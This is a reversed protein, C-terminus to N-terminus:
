FTDGFDDPRIVLRQRVDKPIMLKLHVEPARVKPVKTRTVQVKIGARLLDLSMAEMGGQEWHERFTKGGAVYVWRDKASEPDIAELEAILKDLTGEAQDQTFRTKTYRGGPELEKMYYAISEELRKLEKRMEEGRAYERTEVPFDGLVALVQEVLRDYVETPNPSGYGGSKCGQCRLYAYDGHKNRTHHVIMNTECNVCKLVGLFKTAGGVHRPPQNKGRADLVAQLSDFEEQTFIPDAVRIPKGDRGYLLKSRRMGTTEKNEEVRYGLLAPNRLRRLLTSATLGGTVLERTKLEDAVVRAAMGGIALERALHLAESAEPDIVLVVKGTEDRQTMYGYAPKGVLWEGQTKTYDWLSEVRTKTNAAEIEAVGGLLQVMMKGMTTTLDIPDNKSILNKSYTESWRVMVNLDNLNRIFRDIKWFLLADFEPARNSLWDGLSKRKWPPVKTASVNLDSAVGIVRLGKERALQRLDLEQRVPSTTDDTFVSLRVSLLARPADLPLRAEAEELEQLLALDAETWEADINYAAREAAPQRKRSSMTLM